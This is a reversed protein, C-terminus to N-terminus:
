VLCLVENRKHGPGWDIAVVQELTVACDFSSYTKVLEILALRQSTTLPEAMVVEVRLHDVRDQTVRYEQVPAIPLWHRAHLVFFVQEGNPLKLLSIERGQLQTLTPGAWGCPCVPSCAAIDRIDYRVFPTALNNLGTLLVRGQQGPACHRGTEDVVEVIVNSLAVHYHGEAHACEFAIPGLEECSYIDSIRAGFLGRVRQRLQPSVANARTIFEIARPARIQRTEYYDCLGAAVSAPCVLYGLGDEGLQQALSAITQGRWAVIRAAGTEFLKGLIDPWRPVAPSTVNSSSIITKPQLLDRGTLLSQAGYLWQNVMGAAHSVWFALPQGSSGSTKGQLTAGWEDETQLAGEQAVQM